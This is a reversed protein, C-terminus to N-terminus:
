AEPGKLGERKLVRFRALDVERQRAAQRRRAAIQFALVLHPVGVIVWDGSSSMKPAAVALSLLIAGWFYLAFLPDSGGPFRKGYMMALHEWGRRLGPSGEAPSPAPEDEEYFVQLYRGIREVGTHLAFVAEFLVALLLLPVLLAVASGVSQLITLAAWMALGLAVLLVRVSGRERITARLARYEEIECPNM